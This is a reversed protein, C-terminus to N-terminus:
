STKNEFVMLRYVNAGSAGLRLFQFNTNVTYLGAASITTTAAGSALNTAQVPTFNLALEANGDTVGQVAGPDISGYIGMPAAIPAVVQITAKEWGGVDLTINYLSDKYQQTLNQNYSLM